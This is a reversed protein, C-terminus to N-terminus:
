VAMRAVLAAAGAISWGAAVERPTHRGEHVRAWSVALAALAFPWLGRHSTAELLAAVGVPISAHGSVKLGAVTAATVMAAAVLAALTFARVVEPAGVFYVAGAFLAAVCLAATLFGPREHRLSLDRDSYWGRRLGVAWLVAIPAVALLAALTWGLASHADRTASWTLAFVGLPGVLAPHLLVGLARAIPWRRRRDFRTWAILGLCAGTVDVLLDFYEERGWLRDRHLAQVLEQTAAILAFCLAAAVARSTRARRTAALVAPPLWWRALAVALAGYLLTHAVLHVPEERVFRDLRPIRALSLHELLWATTILGLAMAAATTRARM